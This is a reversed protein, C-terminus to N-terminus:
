ARDSDTQQSIIMGIMNVRDPEYEIVEEYLTFANNKRHLFDLELAYLSLERLLGMEQLLLHRTYREKLEEFPLKLLSIFSM